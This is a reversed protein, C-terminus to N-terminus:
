LLVVVKIALLGAEALSELELAVLYHQVVGLAVL